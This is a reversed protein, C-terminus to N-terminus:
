PRIRRAARTRQAAGRQRQQSAAPRSSAAGGPEAYDRRRRIWCWCSRRRGPGQRAALDAGIRSRCTSISPSVPTSTHGAQQTKFCRPSPQLERRAVLEGDAGHFATADQQRRRSPSQRPLPASTSPVKTICPQWAERTAAPVGKAGRRGVSFLFAGRLRSPKWPKIYAAALTHAPAAISEGNPEALIDGARNTKKAAFIAM